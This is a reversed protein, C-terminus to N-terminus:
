QSRRLLLWTIGILAVILLLLQQVLLLLLQHYCTNSSSRRWILCAFAGCRCCQGCCRCCCCRCRRRCCRYCCSDLLHTQRAALSTANQLRHFMTTSDVIYREELWVIQQSEIDTTAGDKLTQAQAARAKNDVGIQILGTLLMSSTAPLLLLLLLMHQLLLLLLLLRCNNNIGNCTMADARRCQLLMM